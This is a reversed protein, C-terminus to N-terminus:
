GCLWQFFTYTKQSIMTQKGSDPWVDIPWSPRANKGSLTSQVHDVHLSLNEPDKDSQRAKVFSVVSVESTFRVERCPEAEEPSAGTAKLIQLRAHAPLLSFGDAVAFVRLLICCVPLFVLFTLFVKACSYKKFFPHKNLEINRQKLTQREIKACFAELRWSTRRKPQPFCSM